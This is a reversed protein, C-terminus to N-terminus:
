TRKEKIFRRILGVTTEPEIAQFSWDYTIVEVGRDKLARMLRDYASILQGLNENVGEMQVNKKSSVELVEEPPRCYVILVDALYNALAMMGAQSETIMPRGSRLVPDYIEESIYPHRDCVLILRPPVKKLWDAIEVMEYPHHPKSNTRIIWLYDDIALRLTSALTTKGGGDPGELIILM